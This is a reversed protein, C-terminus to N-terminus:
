GEILAQLRQLDAWADAKLGPQRLLMRPSCTTVMPVGDLALARSRLSALPVSPAALQGAGQGLALICRQPALALARRLLPQFAAIEDATAARDGPTSWPLLAAVSVADIDIGIAALMASLLRREDGDAPLPTEALLLLPADAAAVLLRPPAASRRGLPHDMAVLAADIAALSDLGDLSVLPAPAAVAIPAPHHQLVAAAAMAPAAAPPEALWHRPADDVIMDIGCDVMWGLASAAMFANPLERPANAALM